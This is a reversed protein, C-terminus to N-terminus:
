AGDTLPLDPSSSPGAIFVRNGPDPTIAMAYAYDDGAGGYYTARELVSLNPSFRAIFADRQGGNNEQLGGTLPCIALAAKVQSTSMVWCPTSRSATPGTMAVAVLIPLPMSPGIEYLGTMAPSSLGEM